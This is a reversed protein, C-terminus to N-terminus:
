LSTFDILHIPSTSGVKFRKVMTGKYPIPKYLTMTVTVVGHVNYRNVIYPVSMMPLNWDEEEISCLYRLVIAINEPTSEIIKNQAVLNDYSASINRSTCVSAIM